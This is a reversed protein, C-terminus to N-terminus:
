WECRPRMWGTSPPWPTGCGTRPRLPPTSRSDLQRRRVMRGRGVPAGAARGGAAPQGAAESRWGSFDEAAEVHGSAPMDFAVNMGAGPESAPGNDTAHVMVPMDFAVNTGAHQHVLTNGTAADPLAVVAPRPEIDVVVHEAADAAAAATEAVVVAVPEGAFRVTDRALIPRAMSQNVVPIPKLDPLDLDAATFVGLVGTPGRRRRTWVSWAGVRWPPACSARTPWGTSACIPWM